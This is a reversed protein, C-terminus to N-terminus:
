TQVREFADRVDDISVYRRIADCSARDQARRAAYAVAPNTASAARAAVYAAVDAADAAAADYAVSAVSASASASAVFAAAAAERREEEDCEGRALRRAAGIAWACALQADFPVLHWVSEAIDAAALRLGPHDALGAKWCLWVMWGPRECEAWARGLTRGGVWAVADDCAGIAILKQRFTM